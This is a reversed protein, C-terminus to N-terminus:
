RHQVPASPRKRFFWGFYLCVLFLLFHITGREASLQPSQMASTWM